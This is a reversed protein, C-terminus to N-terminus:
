PCILLSASCRKSTFFITLQVMPTNKKEVLYAKLQEELCDYQIKDGYIKPRGPGSYEGQFPFYLAANYQLKSILEFGKARVIKAVTNNGFGGDGVVYQINILTALLPAIFQIFRDLITGLVQFTYAIDETKAIKVSKPKNKTAKQSGVHGTKEAVVGTKKAQAKAAQQAKKAAKKEVTEDVTM